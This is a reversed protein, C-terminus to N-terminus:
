GIGDRTCCCDPVLVDGVTCDSDDPWPGSGKGIVTRGAVVRRTAESALFGRGLTIEGRKLAGQFNSECLQYFVQGV